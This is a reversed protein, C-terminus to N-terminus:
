YVSSSNCPCFHVSLYVSFLVTAYIKGIDAKDDEWCGMSLNLSSSDPSCATKSIREFVVVQYQCLCVKLSINQSRLKSKKEEM